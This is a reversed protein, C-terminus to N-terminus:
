GDSRMGALTLANVNRIHTDQGEGCPGSLLIRKDAALAASVLNWTGLELGVVTGPEFNWTGPQSPVPQENGVQFKSGPVKFRSGPVQFRSGPVVKQPSDPAMVRTNI